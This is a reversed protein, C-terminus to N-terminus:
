HWLESFTEVGGTCAGPCCQVVPPQYRRRVEGGDQTPFPKNGHLPDTQEHYFLALLAEIRFLRSIIYMTALYTYQICLNNILRYCVCPLMSAYIHHGVVQAAM